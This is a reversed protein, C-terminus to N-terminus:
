SGGKLMRRVSGSKSTSMGLESATLRAIEDETMIAAKNGLLRHKSKKTLNLTVHCSYCKVCRKKKKVTTQGTSEISQKGSPARPTSPPFRHPIIIVSDDADNFSPTVPRIDAMDHEDASHEDQEDAQNPTSFIDELEVLAEKEPSGSDSAV